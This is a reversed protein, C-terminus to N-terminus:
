YAEEVLISNSNNLIDKSESQAHERLILKHNRRQDIRMM